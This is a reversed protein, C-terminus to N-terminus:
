AKSEEVDTNWHGAEVLAKKNGFAIFVTVISLVLMGILLYLVPIYSNLADYIFGYAPLAIISSIALGMSATAYIESYAKKGFLTSTLAPAIIGISSSILGFVSVAAIIVALNDKTFIIVVISAIGILMTAIATLKSGLKDVLVGLLLSGILIGIMYFSMVTGSDQLTFGISQLHTPIHQSFSAISTIFFFFLMLMYLATSKKAIKMSIGDNNVQAQNSTATDEEDAGYPTVGHAQPSRKILLLAIPVIIVIAAVGISIYAMRWGFGSILSAAVPQAIAGFLGGAASLIGLALGTSKRFWQNIVVPGVIVTIFVGGMALPVALLYWGFVHQMVGFLIFAGAQLLIGAVIIYRTDYKAMLKGGIPLFVMTVVASVSFYLTLTGMGIGLEDTVPLLFLGASNNLAGKGIGVIVSLALLIIWAYHFKSQKKVKKGVEKIM